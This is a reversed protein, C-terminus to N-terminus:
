TRWAPALSTPPVSISSFMERAAPADCPCRMPTSSSSDMTAGSPRGSTCREVSYASAPVADVGHGPVVEFGPPVAGLRACVLDVVRQGVGLLVRQVLRELSQGRLVREPRRLDALQLRHDPRQAVQGLLARRDAVELDGTGGQGFHGLGEPDEARVALHAFHRHEARGARQGFVRDVDEGAVQGALQGLRIPHHHGPRTRPDHRGAEFPGAALVGEADVDPQGVFLAGVDEDGLVGLQDLHPVEEGPLQHQDLLRM